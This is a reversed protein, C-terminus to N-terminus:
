PKQKSVWCKGSEGFRGFKGEVTRRGPSSYWSTVTCRNEVRFDQLHPTRPHLPSRFYACSIPLHLQLENSAEVPRRCCGSRCFWRRDSLGGSAADVPICVHIRASERDQSKSHDHTHRNRWAIYRRIMRGQETHSAHDTGDLTFYRLATFQAQSLPPTGGVVTASHSSERRANAATPGAEHYEEALSSV